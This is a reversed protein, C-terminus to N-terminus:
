IFSHFRCILVFISSEPQLNFRRLVSSASSFVAAVTRLYAVGVAGGVNQMKGAGIFRILLARGAGKASGVAGFVCGHACVCEAALLGARELARLSNM